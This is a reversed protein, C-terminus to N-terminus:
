DYLYLKPVRVSLFLFAEEDSIIGALKIYFQEHLQVPM